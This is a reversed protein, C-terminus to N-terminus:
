YSYAFAFIDKIVYIMFTQNLELRRSMKILPEFREDDLYEFLSNFIGM